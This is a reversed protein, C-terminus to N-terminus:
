QATLETRLFPKARQFRTKVTSAPINLVQGIEAYNMHKSYYLSVVSRYAHPLANIARQIERQLDRQELLEEPTPSMDPITDLFSAEDEENGTEVESFSLLRKRRLVDLSRNRAVKFLWPKLDVNPHLSPLSLYLQLWVQQLVDQAEHYEGLYRYILGFLSLQYRSILVEFAKQDGALAQHLLINDSTEPDPTKRYLQTKMSVIGQKGIGALLGWTKQLPPIFPREKRQPKPPTFGTGLGFRKVNVFM